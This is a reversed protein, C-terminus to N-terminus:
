IAPFKTVQVAHIPPRNHHATQVAKQLTYNILCETKPSTLSKLQYKTESTAPCGTTHPVNLNKHRYFEYGDDSKHRWGFLHTLVLAEPSFQHRLKWPLLSESPATPPKNETWGLHLYQGWCKNFTRKENEYLSLGLKVRMYTVTSSM